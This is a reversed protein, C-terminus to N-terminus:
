LGFTIVIEDNATQHLQFKSFDYQNNLLLCASVTKMFRFM